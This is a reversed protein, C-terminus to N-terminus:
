LPQDGDPYQDPRSPEVRGVTPDRSKSAFLGRQSPRANRTWNRWTADWDSKRENKSRAWDHLKQLEEDLDVGRARAKAEAELNAESRSPKWDGTLVSRKRRDQKQADAPLSAVTVPDPDTDRLTAVTDTLTVNQSPTHCPTVDHSVTHSPMAIDTPQSDFQSENDNQTQSAAAVAEARRRDRSEQQRARDSKRATQAATFNPAFVGKPTMVVRGDRELEHGAELVVDDPMRVVRAVSIWGNRVPLLGARDFKRLMAHWLALAQWSLEADDATDRTYVRVYDENSWDM